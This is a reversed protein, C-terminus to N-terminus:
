AGDSHSKEKQSDQASGLWHVVANISAATM